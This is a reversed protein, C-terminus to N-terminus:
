MYSQHSSQYGSSAYSGYISSAPQQGTGVYNSYNGSASQLGAGAYAGYNPAANYLVSPPVREDPYHYPRQVNAQQGYTAHIPAEYMLPASYPYREAGGTYYGRGEVPMPPLRRNDAAAASRRPTYGGTSRPRKQQFKPGEATRKKDTKSIELHALRKQLPDLPYESQLKYEEICKIVGRLASLEQSCPDKQLSAASIDGNNEQLSKLEELCSKLLPVPPFSETLEFAHIFHVADIQRGRKVLAEVVAPVKQTLGVFRCLEPSQRRRSVAVVLKCLEDEDFESAICFTALLQLFAQAEFSFGNSADVDMIALKAKWEDAIAKAQQKIEASMPHDVGSETMRLLPAASEMLALCSRRLGQLAGDENEQSNSQDMPYFSELSDLVLRAPETAYKLAVSLEERLTALNKKNESIFKLLGKADMQECLQQLQLRPKVKVEAETSEGSGKDPINSDILSASVKKEKSGKVDVLEPIAVKYKRRAEAIASVADDRLEQLRQLSSHEKASVDAEKEAILARTESQKEEFARQKVELEDLKDKFSRDLNLFHEKIKDWHIKSQLSTEGHSELEDFAKELQELMPMASEIGMAVKGADEM